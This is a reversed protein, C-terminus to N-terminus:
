CEEGCVQQEPSLTDPGCGLTFTLLAAVRDALTTNFGKQHTEPTLCFYVLTLGARTAVTGGTQVSEVMELTHTHRSETACQTLSIHTVSM